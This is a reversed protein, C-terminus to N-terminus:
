EEDYDFLNDTSPVFFEEGVTDDYLEDEPSLVKNLCQRFDPRTSVASLIDDTHGYGEEVLVKALENPGEETIFSVGKLMQESGDAKTTYKRLDLKVDDSEGWSIKRLAIFSNGKEDIIKDFNDIIRYSFDGKFAM